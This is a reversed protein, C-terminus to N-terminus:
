TWFKLLYVSHSISDVPRPYFHFNDNPPQLKFIPRTIILKMRMMTMIMMMRYTENVDIVMCFRTTTAEFNASNHGNPTKMMMIMMMMMMMMRYTENLNIVMYFRSNTAEFNALNHGNLSKEFIIM